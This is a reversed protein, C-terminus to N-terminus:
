DKKIRANELIVDYIYGYGFDKGLGLTGEAVIVDDLAATDNTTITLDAGSSGDLIHIWNHGLVGSTYKVVKGRVRVTKGELKDKGAIIQAITQGGEAKRLGTIPGSAPPNTIGTHPRMAATADENGKEEADGPVDTIITDTFYILDFDRDLNKSHFDKMAMPASIAVMMGPQLQTLPGAAWFQENGNNLRMYTFGGADFTEVVSGYRKQSGHASDAPVPMVPHPATAAQGVEPQPKEECAALLGLSILGTFVTRLYPKM